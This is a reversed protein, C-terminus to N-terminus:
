ENKVQYVAPLGTTRRCTTPANGTWKKFARGFNAASSYGLRDAIDDISWDSCQLYRIAMDKRWSDVVQQYTMNIKKLERILARQSIRLQNAVQEQNPFGDPYHLIVKQIKQILSTSLEIQHIEDECQKVAIQEILPDGLQWYRKLEQASFVIENAPCDFECIDGFIERYAQVYDPAPYSFRVSKINSANNPIIRLANYMGSSFQEIENVYFDQDPIRTDISLTADDESFSLSLEYARGVLKIYKAVKKLAEEFSASSFVAFGVTGHETSNINTGYRLFLSPDPVTQRAKRYLKKYQSFDLYADTALLHEELGAAQMLAQRSGGLQEALLLLIRTYNVAQIPTDDDIQM